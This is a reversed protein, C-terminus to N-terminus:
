QLQRQLKSSYSQLKYNYSDKHTAVTVKYNAVTVTKTVQQRKLKSSYSDQQMGLWLSLLYTRSQTSLHDEKGREAWCSHGATMIRNEAEAVKVQELSWMEHALLMWQKTETEKRKAWPKRLENTNHVHYIKGGKHFQSISVQTHWSPFFSIFAARGPTMHPMHVEQVQGRQPLPM